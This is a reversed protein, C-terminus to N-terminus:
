DPVCTSSACDYHAGIACGHCANEQSCYTPTFSCGLSTSTWCSGCESEFYCFLPHEGSCCALWGNDDCGYSATGPACAQLSGGCETATSCDIPAAFCGSGGGPVDCFEETTGCCESPRSVSCHAVPTSGGCSLCADDCETQTSKCACEGSICSRGAACQIGCEGCHDADTLLNACEGGCITSGTACKCVGSVCIKGGVCANGCTGCNASDSKLDACVSGCVTKPTPCGCTGSMCIQDGLCAHGCTGCNSKNTKKDVCTGSCSSLGGSCGGKGASGGKGGIGGDEELDFTYGDLDAVTSCGVTTWGWLLAAGCVVGVFHRM